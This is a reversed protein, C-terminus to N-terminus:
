KHKEKCRSLKNGASCSADVDNYCEKKRSEIVANQTEDVFDKSKEKKNEKGRSFSRYTLPSMGYTKRFLRDFYCHDSYGIATCIDIVTRDTEALLRRAEALRLEVVYAHVTTGYADRFRKQIDAPRMGFTVSLSSLSQKERFVSYQLHRRIDDAVGKLPKIVNALYRFARLLFMIMEDGLEIRSIGPRSCVLEFDSVLTRFNTGKAHIGDSLGYAVLMEDTLKGMFNLSMIIVSENGQRLYRWETGGRLILVDGAGGDYVRGDGLEFRCRGSYMYLMTDHDFHYVNKGGKLWKTIEIYLGAVNPCPSLVPFNQMSHTPRSTKNRM